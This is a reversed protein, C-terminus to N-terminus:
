ILYPLNFKIYFNENMGLNFIKMELYNGRGYVLGGALYGRLVNSCFVYFRM